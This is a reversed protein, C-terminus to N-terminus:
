GILKAEFIKMRFGSGPYDNPCVDTRSNHHCGGCFNCRWENVKLCKSFQSRAYYRGYNNNPRSKGEDMFPSKSSMRFPNEIFVTNTM